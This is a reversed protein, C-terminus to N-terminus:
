VNIEDYFITQGGDNLDFQIESGEIDGAEIVDIFSQAYSGSLSADTLCIIRAKTNDAPDVAHIKVVFQPLAQAIQDVVYKESVGTDTTRTGPLLIEMNEADFTELFQCSISSQPKSFQLITGTDDAKIPTTDFALDNKLGRVSALRTWAATDKLATSDTPDISGVPAIYLKGVYQALAKPKEAAM